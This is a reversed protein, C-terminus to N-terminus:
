KLPIETKCSIHETILMKQKVTNCYLFDRITCIKLKTHNSDFM